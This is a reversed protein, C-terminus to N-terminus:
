MRERLQGLLYRLELGFLALGGLTPAGRQARLHDLLTSVPVYWGPREALWTLTADVAPDLRGEPAFGKGLHTSVICVGGDAELRELSARHVRQNWVEVNPADTTSFWHAVCPTTALRYPMRRDQRLVDLGPFTFNRVYDVHERCLDGWYYPSGERQGSFEGEPNRGLLRFLLGIWPRLLPSQFRDRGWYLNETNQGHNAHLRPAAGLERVLFDLGRVTRERPSPEMTAGHSAIEFGAAALSRVYALYDERQLTDAAFYEQSGEPCDMPWVTKTTRFGLARLRDYVPRVNELTSDDTDDLITFAFRKGDPFEM